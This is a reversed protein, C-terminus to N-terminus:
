LRCKDDGGKGGKAFLFIRFGPKDSADDRQLVQYM